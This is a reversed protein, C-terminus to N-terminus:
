GRLFFWWIAGGIATLALLVLLVRLLFHVVKVALFLALIGVVAIIAMSYHSLIATKIHEITDM